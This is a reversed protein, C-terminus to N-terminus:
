TKLGQRFALPHLEVHGLPLFAGLGLIDGRQLQIKKDRGRHGQLYRPRRKGPKDFVPRGAIFATM